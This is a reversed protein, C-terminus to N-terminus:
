RSLQNLVQLSKWSVDFHVLNQVFLPISKQMHCSKLVSSANHKGQELFCLVVQVLIFNSLPHVLSRALVLECRQVICREFAIHLDHLLEHVVTSVHVLAVEVPEVDEM